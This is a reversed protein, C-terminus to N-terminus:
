ILGHGGVGLGGDRAARVRQGEVFERGALELAEAQPEHLAFAEGPDFVEAFRSAFAPAAPPGPLGSSAEDELALPHLRESRGVGALLDFLEAAQGYLILGVLQHEYHRPPDAGVRAGCDPLAPAVLGGAVEPATVLKVLPDLTM